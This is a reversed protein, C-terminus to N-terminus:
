KVDEGMWSQFIKLQSITVSQCISHKRKKRLKKENLKLEVQIEILSAVKHKNKWNTIFYGFGM